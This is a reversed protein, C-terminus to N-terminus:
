SSSGKEGSISFNGLLERCGKSGALKGREAPLKVKQAGYSNGRKTGGGRGGRGCFVRM